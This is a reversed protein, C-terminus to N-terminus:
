KCDNFIKIFVDNHPAIKKISNKSFLANLELIIWKWSSYQKFKKAIASNLIKLMLGRRQTDEFNLILLIKHTRTKIVFSHINYCYQKSYIYVHMISKVYLHSIVFYKRKLHLMYLRISIGTTTNNKNLLCIWDPFLYANCLFSISM